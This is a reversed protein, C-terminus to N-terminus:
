NRQPPILTHLASPSQEKVYKRRAEAIMGLVSEARQRVNPDSNTVRANWRRYEDNLYRRILEPDMDSTIGLAVDSNKFASMDAPLLQEFMQRVKARDLVLWMGFRNLTDMEKEVVAGDAKAVSICLRMLEFREPEPALNVIENCLARIDIRGGSSFFKIAQHLARELQRELQADPVFEGNNSEAIKTAAWNRIVALESEAVDDDAIAVALALTVGHQQTRAVNMEADEYGLGENEFVIQTKAAALSEGTECSVLAVRFVLTRAGKKTFSLIAAPLSAVAVWDALETQRRPLKGNPEEYQFAGSSDRQYRAVSCRAPQSNPESIDDINVRLKTDHNDSPANIAGKIEVCFMQVPGNKSQESRVSVRCNFESEAVLPRSAPSRPAARRVTSTRPAMGLMALFAIVVLAALTIFIATM